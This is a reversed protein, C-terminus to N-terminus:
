RPPNVMASVTLLKFYANVADADHPPTGGSFLLHWLQHGPATFISAILLPVLLVLVIAGDAILVGVDLKPTPIMVKVQKGHSAADIMIREPRFDFPGLVPSPNAPDFSASDFALVIEPFEEPPAANFERPMDFELQMVSISILAGRMADSVHQWAVKDDILMQLACGNRIPLANKTGPLSVAWGAVDVTRLSIDPITLTAGPDDPYTHSYLERVGGSTRIHVGIQRTSFVDTMRDAAVPATYVGNQDTTSTALNTSGFLASEDKILVQLGQIGKSSDDVVRGTVSTSM